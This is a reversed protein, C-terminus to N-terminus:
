LIQYGAIGCSLVTFVAGFTDVFAAHSSDYSGTPHTLSSGPSAAAGDVDPNVSPDAVTDDAMNLTSTNTHTPFYNLLLNYILRRKM